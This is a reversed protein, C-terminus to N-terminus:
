KERNPRTGGLGSDNGIRSTVESTNDTSGSDVVVIEWNFNTGIQNNLSDLLDAVYGARNRTPITVSILM